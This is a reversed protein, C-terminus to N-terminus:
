IMLSSFTEGGQQKLNSQGQVGLALKLEIDTSDSSPAIAETLNLVEIDEVSLNNVSPRDSLAENISLQQSESQTM